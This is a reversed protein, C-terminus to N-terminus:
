IFDNQHSFYTLEFILDLNCNDRFVMDGDYVTKSTINKNFVLLNIVFSVLEQSEEFVFRKQLYVRYIKLIEDFTSLSELINVRLLGLM